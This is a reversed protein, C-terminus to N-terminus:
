VVAKVARLVKTLDEEEVAGEIEVVMQGNLHIRIKSGSMQPRPKVRVFGANKGKGRERLKRRWYDLAWVSVGNSKCFGERSLGSASWETLLSKWQEEKRQDM